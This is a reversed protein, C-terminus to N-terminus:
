TKNAANIANVTPTDDIKSAVTAGLKNTTLVGIKKFLAALQDVGAGIGVSLLLMWQESAYKYTLLIFIPILLINAIFKLLNAAFLYNWSFKVPSNPDAINRNSAAILTSAFAAVYAIVTFGIFFGVSGKGIIQAWFTSM